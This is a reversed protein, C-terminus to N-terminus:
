KKKGKKKTHKVKGKTTKYVLTLNIGALVTLLGSATAISIMGDGTGPRITNASCGLDYSFAALFLLVLIFVGLVSPMSILGM